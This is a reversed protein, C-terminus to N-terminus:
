VEDISSSRILLAFAIGSMALVVVALYPNCYQVATREFGLHDELQLSRMRPPGRLREFAFRALASCPHHIALPRAARSSRTSPASRGARRRRRASAGFFFLFLNFGCTCPSCTHSAAHKHRHVHREVFGRATDLCVQQWVNCASYAAADGM